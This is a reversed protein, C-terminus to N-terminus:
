ETLISSLTVVSITLCEPPILSFCSSMSGFTHMSMNLSTFGYAIGLSFLSPVAPDVKGGGGKEHCHRGSQDRRFSQGVEKFSLKKVLLDVAQALARTVKRHARTGM